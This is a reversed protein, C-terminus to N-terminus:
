KGEFNFETVDDNMLPSGIRCGSCDCVPPHVSLVGKALLLKMSKGHHRISRKWDKATERGSVYQFENPTLWTDKFLICPGKSGQCLRSLYLLGKNGGCEVELIVEGDRYM